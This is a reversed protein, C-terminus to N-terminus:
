PLLFKIVRRKKETEPEVPEQKYADPHILSLTTTRGNEVDFSFEVANVLMQSDIGAYEDRVPVLVNTTWLQGGQDRYGDLSVSYLLGRAKRINAEWDARQQGVTSGSSNEMIFAFQRSARIDEDLSEAKQNVMTEPAAELYPNVTPNLQSAMIYTNFRGTTDYIADYTIVNNTNSGVLNQIVGAGTVGAARTIVLNGDANSSLLVQRKRALGELFEFANQAPEPSALDNAVDFLPPSVEDIVDIDAGIHAIVKECITKLSAATGIDSLDPRDSRDGGMHSDVLDGTKDRGRISIDHSEADGSPNAIEIFGSIVKEGDVTVSCAEGGKFPLPVGDKSTAEFSFADAVADLRLTAEAALFGEYEIGSVVLKM